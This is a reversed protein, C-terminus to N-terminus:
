CILTAKKNQQMFLNPKVEHNLDRPPKVEHIYKM